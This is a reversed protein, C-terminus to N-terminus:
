RGAVLDWKNGKLEGRVDPGFVVLGLHKAPVKAGEVVEAPLLEEDALKHPVKGVELRGLTLGAQTVGLLVGFIIWNQKAKCRVGPDPAVLLADEGPVPLGLRRGVQEPLPVM